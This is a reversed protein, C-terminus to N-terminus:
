LIEKLMQLQYLSFGAKLFAERRVAEDDSASAIREYAARCLEMEAEPTYIRDLADSIFERRAGHQLLRQEMVRRGEPRRRLRSRAYEHCYRTEDLCGEEELSDLTREVIGRPFKRQLLKTQLECRCHERLSLLGLAKQYCEEAECTEKLSFFGSEDLEQGERLRLRSFVSAPIIFPMIFSSGESAAQWCGKSSERTVVAFM